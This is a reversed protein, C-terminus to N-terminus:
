KCYIVMKIIMSIIHIIRHFQFVNVSTTPAKSGARPVIQMGYNITSKDTPGMLMRDAYIVTTNDCDNM